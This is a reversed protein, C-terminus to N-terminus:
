VREVNGVGFLGTPKFLLLLVLIGFAVTDRFSSPLFAAAATEVGGLIYGGLMAGPVSGIGGLVAAVFAKIGPVLGMYPDIMPWVMGVMVGAAAASASGVAFTYTVIRNIDVGMLLTAEKDFSVARMAKGIMTRSVLYNLLIMLVVATVLVVVIVNTFSVGALTFTKKAIIAPYPRYQPGIVARTGNELALSVGIATILASLRPATRLPRYAIREIIIGAAAAGVMAMALAPLFSFHFLTAAYYGLYAGIMYIDGHAFNILKLVGYVMTYGLAILAYVSGLQIANLVQQLLIDM